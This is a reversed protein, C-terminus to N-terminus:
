RAGPHAKSRLQKGPPPAVPKVRADAVLKACESNEGPGTKILPILAAIPAFAALALAGGAKMALVGKDISVTPQKFSGRLYLPARLSLVRLGRSNPKITLDLRERALDINGSVDIIADDTDIIFSRTQMLGNTVDFDTAMCNLKVQRDGFLRSLIVNGINLGMEELLLKSVAGQNVLTKIEGNAAGLLSAISNGAASLAADGNIEGISGQLPQWDPLLAKLRLHRATVKMEAKIPDKGANGRADLTINANLSGGALDLSIPLLSLVGDKLHVNTTLKKIPLDKSGVISEASFRIDADISTWRETKFPEVPLVKDTPQLTEAGRQAKSSNSDAGILPALDSLRLLHSVVTGSLLARAQTSQYELNGGIDSSGVKGSFTEYTWRGGHPSLAGILHGATAFPPTEPLVIGTLPYLRAMSVGSLQLRMDLAVLDTPKTITGELAIVTQGARLTAMLPYPATHRQLALVAGAKGKGSVAEGNFNGRLQWAVGYTPDAKLTDIEATMDAHRVVDILHISARTLIVRQLELQWPSPREANKFTWNNSGDAGRLLSVVPTDFSLVPIAIRRGLLALPNLSFALQKIRAMEPPLPKGNPVGADASLGLSAAAPSGPRNGLHVDRAVVHPWPIMDRWGADSEGQGPTHAKWTLSLDGAIAFPRGLAESVHANLWPKALNWDLNSLVVLALAPAIILGLAVTYAIKTRRPM